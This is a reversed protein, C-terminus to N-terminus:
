RNRKWQNVAQQWTKPANAFSTASLRGNSAVYAYVIRQAMKRSIKGDTSAVLNNILYTAGGPLSKGKAAGQQSRRVIDSPTVGVNRNGRPYTSSGLASFGYEFRKNPNRSDPGAKDKPKKPAKPPKNVQTTRSDANQQATAEDALNSRRTEALQRNKLDIEAKKMLGQQVALRDEIVQKRAEAIADTIFKERWASKKATYDAKDSAIVDRRRKNADKEALETLGAAEVRAVAYKAAADAAANEAIAQSSMQAGRTAINADAVQRFNAEQSPQGLQAAQDRLIGAVRDRDTNAAQTVGEVMQRGTQAQAVSADAARQSAAKVDDRYRQFWADARDELGQQNQERQRLQSEGEGFTLTELQGRRAELERGTEMAGPTIPNNLFRSRVRKDYWEKPLAQDVVKLRKRPDNLIRQQQEATLGRFEKATVKNDGFIYKSKKKKAM